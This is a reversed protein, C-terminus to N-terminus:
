LIKSKYGYYIKADEIGLNKISHSTGAPILLESNGEQIFSKNGITCEYKGSEMLVVEDKDAHAAESIGDGAKITGIGFSFGRAIWNKELENNNM